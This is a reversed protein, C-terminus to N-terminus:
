SGEKCIRLPCRRCALFLRVEVHNGPNYPKNQNNVCESGTIKGLIPCEVDGAKFATEVRQQVATLDANYRNKLLQNVTAASRGIKNAVAKQSSKDCHSALMLIWQPADPGWFEHVIDMASTYPKKETM